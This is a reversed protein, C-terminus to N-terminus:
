SLAAYERINNENKTAVNQVRLHELSARLLQSSSLYAIYTITAAFIYSCKSFLFDGSYKTKEGM